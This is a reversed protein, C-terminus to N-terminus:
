QMSKPVEMLSKLVTSVEKACRKFAIKVEYVFNYVEYIDTIVPYLLRAVFVMEMLKSFSIPASVSSM